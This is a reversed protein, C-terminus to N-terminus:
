SIKNASAFLYSWVTTTGPLISVLYYGNADTVGKNQGNVKVNAGPVGCNPYDKM